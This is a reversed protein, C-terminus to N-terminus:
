GKKTHNELSKLLVVSGALALGVGKKHKKNIYKCCLHAVTEIYLLM